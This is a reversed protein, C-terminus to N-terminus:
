SGCEFCEFHSDIPKIGKLQAELNYIRDRAEMDQLMDGKLNSKLNEIEQEIAIKQETSM